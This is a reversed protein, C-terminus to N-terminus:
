HNRNTNINREASSASDLSGSGVLETYLDRWQPNSKEILDIKWMRKWKKLQKERTIADNVDNCSEYWVLNHVEYKSTFGEVESNKHQFVRKIIDHTVGVYLTGKPKSALM